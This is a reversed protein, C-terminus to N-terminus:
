GMKKILEVEYDMLRIAYYCLIQQNTSSILAKFHKIFEAFKINYNNVKFYDIETERGSEKLRKREELIAADVNLFKIILERNKEILSIWEQPWTKPDERFIYGKNKFKDIYM